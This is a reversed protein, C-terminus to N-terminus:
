SASMVGSNRVSFTQLGVFKLLDWVLTDHGRVRPRLATLYSLVPEYSLM